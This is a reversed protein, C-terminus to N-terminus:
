LFPPCPSVSATLVASLQSFICHSYSSFKFDLLCIECIVFKRVEIFDQIYGAVSIITSIDGKRETWVSRRTVIEFAEMGLIIWRNDFM